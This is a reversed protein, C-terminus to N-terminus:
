AALGNALQRLYENRNCGGDNVSRDIAEACDEHVEGVYRLSSVSDGPLILATCFGCRRAERRKKRPPTTM